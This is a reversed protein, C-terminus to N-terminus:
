MSNERSQYYSHWEFDGKSKLWKHSFLDTLSENPWKVISELSTWLNMQEYYLKEWCCLQTWKCPEVCTGKWHKLSCTWVHKHWFLLFWNWVSKHSWFTVSQKSGFAPHHCHHLWTASSMALAHLNQNPRFKRSYIGWTHRDMHLRFRSLQSWLEFYQIVFSFLTMSM